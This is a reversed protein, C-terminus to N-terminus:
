NHYGKKFTRVQGSGERVKRTGSKELSPPPLLLPPAAEECCKGNSRWKGLEQM